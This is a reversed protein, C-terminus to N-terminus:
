HSYIPTGRDGEKPNIVKRSCRESRLSASTHAQKDYHINVPQLQAASPRSVHAPGTPLATFNGHARQADGELFRRTSLLGSARQDTRNPNQPPKM